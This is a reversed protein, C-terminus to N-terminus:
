LSVELYKWIIQFNWTMFIFCSPECYKMVMDKCSDFLIQLRFAKTEGIVFYFIELSLLHKLPAMNM